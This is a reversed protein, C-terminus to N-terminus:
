HKVLKARGRDTIWLYAQTNTEFTLKTRLREGSLGSERTDCSSHIRWENKQAALRARTGHKRASMSSMKKM